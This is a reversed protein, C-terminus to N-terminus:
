RRVTRRGQELLYLRLAARALWRATNERAEPSDYGTISNFYNEAVERFERRARNLLKRSSAIM